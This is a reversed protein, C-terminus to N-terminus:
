VPLEYLDNKINFEKARTETDNLTLDESTKQSEMAARLENWKKKGNAQKRNWLCRCEESLHECRAGNRAFTWNDNEYIQIQSKAELVRM